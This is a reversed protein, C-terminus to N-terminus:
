KIERKASRKNLKLTSPHHGKQYKKLSNYKSWIYIIKRDPMLEGQAPYFENELKSQIKRSGSTTLVISKLGRKQKGSLKLEFLIKELLLPQWSRIGWSARTHDRDPRADEAARCLNIWWRKCKYCRKHKILDLLEQNKLRRQCFLNIEARIDISMTHSVRADISM